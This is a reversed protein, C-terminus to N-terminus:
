GSSFPRNSAAGSANVNQVHAPFGPRWHSGPRLPHSAKFLKHVEQGVFGVGGDGFEVGVGFGELASDEADTVDDGELAGADGFELLGELVGDVIVEVEALRAAFFGIFGVGALEDEADGWSKVAVQTFVGFLM